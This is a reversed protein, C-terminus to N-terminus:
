FSFDKLRVLLAVKVTVPLRQAVGRLQEATPATIPVAAVAGPLARLFEPLKRFSVDGDVALAVAEGKIPQVVSLRVGDRGSWRGFGLVALGGNPWFSWRELAIVGGYSWIQPDRLDLRRETSWSLTGVAGLSVPSNKLRYFGAAIAEASRFSRFQDLSFAAGNSTRDARAQFIFRSRADERLLTARVSAYAKAGEEPQSITSPGAEVFTSYLKAKVEKPALPPLQDQARAPLALFVSLLALGLGASPGGRRSSLHVVVAILILFLAVLLSM